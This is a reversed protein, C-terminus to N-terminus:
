KSVNIGQDSPIELLQKSYQNPTMQYSRMPSIPQPSIGRQEPRLINQSNTQFKEVSNKRKFPAQDKRLLKTSDANYSPSRIRIDSNGNFHLPTQLFRHQDRGMLRRFYPLGTLEIM